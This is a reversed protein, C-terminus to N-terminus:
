EYVYFTFTWVNKINTRIYYNRWGKRLSEIYVSGDHPSPHIQWGYGQDASFLESGHIGDEAWFAGLIASAALWYGPYYNYEFRVVRNTLQSSCDHYGSPFQYNEALAFSLLLCLCLGININNLKSLSCSMDVENKRFSNQM